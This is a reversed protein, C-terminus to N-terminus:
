EPMQKIFRDAEAISANMEDILKTIETQISTAEGKLSGIAQANLNHKLFLVQDKLKALIPPMRAESRKLTAHLDNYRKRTDALSQRSKAQLSSAQIEGIEREWERFLDGAVTEVNAISKKVHESQTQAREYSSKVSKYKSELEGGQFGYLKKLQELADQFDEGAEKQEEKATKVRSKLLDRKQIGVTEYASYVTDRVAQQCGVLSGLVMFLILLALFSFSGELRKM